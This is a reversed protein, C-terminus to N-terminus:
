LEEEMINRQIENLPEMILDEKSANLFLKPIFAEYYPYFGPHEKIPCMEYEEEM